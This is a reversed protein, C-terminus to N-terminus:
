IKVVKNSSKRITEIRQVRNVFEIRIYISAGGVVKGKELWSRTDTSYIFAVTDGVQLPNNFCDLM